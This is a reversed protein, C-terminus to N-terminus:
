CMENIQLGLSEDNGILQTYAKKIKELSITYNTRRETSDDQGTVNLWGSVCDKAMSYFVMETAYRHNCFMLCKVNNCFMINQWASSHSGVIIDAHYFIDAKEELSLEQGEVFYFGQERFFSEVEELNNLRRNTRRSLYIKRYKCPKSKVKEKLPLVMYKMLKDIVHKPTILRYDLIYKMENYSVTMSPMCILQECCYETKPLVNVRKVKPYRKLYGNLIEEINVDHFDNTLLTVDDDLLGAEGAYFLKCIFQFLFHSWAYSWVGILSVTKGTIYTKKSVHIVKVYDKDFMYLNCDCPIASTVFDEENYKDWWAGINSLVLDSEACVTADKILYIDQAPVRATITREKCIEYIEPTYMLEWTRDKIHYLTEFVGSPRKIIAYKEGYFSYCFWKKLKEYQSLVFSPLYPRIPKLFKKIKDTLQLM